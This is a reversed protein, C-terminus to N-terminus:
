RDNLLAGLLEVTRRAAGANALALSRAATGLSKRYEPEELCRRVFRELEDADAVVVAGHARLLDAAIKRFNRTNPGFSVAAGYGSPELMNQGGRDGWSGGVFAIKALGWWAGLEGIADVLVVRRPDREPAPATPPDPHFGDNLKSRRLWAFGSADLLRAVEDFRERSRPVVILKLRPYERYLRRYTEIAGVEEPAQTSGALFVVDDEEIGILAGLRKTEPNSRDTQVGDYKVSGSVVVREPCPDIAKFREAALEDQAGILDIRRFTPALASKVFRYRQFSKDSIRGNVIAVRAGFDHAAKVLAPWLELEALALLDPKVRRVARRTARGLDLPCYFVPVRDGFLRKALEFGTESTSSVVFEWDQGSAEIERALPKLLNIEGVSVGHLWLRKKGQSVEPLEPVLGFIKEKWGVRYKKYRISAYVVYPLSLLGFLFIAIPYLFDVLM